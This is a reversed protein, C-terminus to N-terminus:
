HRFIIRIIDREQLTGEGPGTDFNRDMEDLVARLRDIIELLAAGQFLRAGM